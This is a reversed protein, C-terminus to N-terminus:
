SMPHNWSCANTISLLHRAYLLCVSLPLKFGLLLLTIKGILHCALHGIAQPKVERARTGRRMALLILPYVM